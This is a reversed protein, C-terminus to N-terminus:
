PSPQPRFGRQRSGTSRGCAGLRLAGGGEWQSVGQGIGAVVTVADIVAALPGHIAWDDGLQRAERERLRMGLVTRGHGAGGGAADLTVVDGDRDVRERALVVGEQERAGRALEDLGQGRERRSLGGGGM